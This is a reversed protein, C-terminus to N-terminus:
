FPLDNYAVRRRRRQLAVRTEVLSLSRSDVFLAFTFPFNSPSTEVLGNNEHAHERPRNYVTVSCCTCCIPLTHTNPFSPEGMSAPDWRKEKSGLSLSLHKKAHVQRSSASVREGQCLDPYINMNKKKIIWTLSKLNMHGLSVTNSWSFKM